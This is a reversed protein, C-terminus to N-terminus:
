KKQIAPACGAMWDEDFEPNPFDSDGFCIAEFMQDGINKRVRRKKREIKREM